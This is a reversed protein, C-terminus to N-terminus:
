DKEQFSDLQSEINELRACITSLLFHTDSDGSIKNLLRRCEIVDIPNFPHEAGWHLTECAFCNKGFRNRSLPTTGCTHCTDSM